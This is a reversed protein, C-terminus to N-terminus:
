MGAGAIAKNYTEEDIPMNGRYYVQSGDPATGTRYEEGGIVTPTQKMLTENKWKTFRYNSDYSDRKDVNEDVQRNTKDMKNTKRKNTESEDIAGNNNKDMSAYRDNNKNIGKTAKNDYKEAKEEMDTLRKNQSNITNELTKVDKKFQKCQEIATEAADLKQIAFVENDVAIEVNAQAVSVEENKKDVLQQSKNLQTELKDAEAKKDGLQEYVAKKNKEAETEATKAQELKKEAEAQKEKAQDLRLKANDMVTKKRAKEPNPVDNGNADKITAPTNEYDSVASQYNSNCQNTVEKAQTLGSEASVRADHAQTYKTVAEGYQADLQTIQGLVNDRGVQTGKLQQQASSLASKSADSKKEADNKIDTLGGKADILDQAQASQTEYISSQAQLSSLTSNAGVIAERLSVADNASTMNSIAGSIAASGSGGGPNGGTFAKVANNLANSNSVNNDGGNMNIVGINNLFDFAQMGIQMGMDLSNFFNTTNNTQAAFMNPQMISQNMSMGYSPTYSRTSTSATGAHSNLAARQGNYNFKNSGKTTFEGAVFGASRRGNLQFHSSPGASTSRGLNRTAQSSVGSSKRTNNLSGGMGPINLKLRDVSM